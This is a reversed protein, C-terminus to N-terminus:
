IFRWHNVARHAMAEQRAQIQKSEWTEGAIQATFRSASQKYFRLKDVFGLGGAERNLRKELLAYNGIRSVWQNNPEQSAPLIHEITFHELEPFGELEALVYKILRKKPGSLVISWHTFDNDFEEDSPYHPM